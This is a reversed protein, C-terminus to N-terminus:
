GCVAHIKTGGGRGANLKIYLSFYTCTCTLVSEYYWMRNSCQHLTTKNATQRELKITEVIQLITQLLMIRTEEATCVFLMAYM